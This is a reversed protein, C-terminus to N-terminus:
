KGLLVNIYKFQVFQLSVHIKSFDGRLYMNEAGPAWELVSVNNSPDINLGFREYSKSFEDISEGSNEFKKLVSEFVGYRRRIESEFPKLYADDAILENLKPVETKHLDTSQSGGM